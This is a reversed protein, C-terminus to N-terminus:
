SILVQVAAGSLLAFLSNHWKIRSSIMMQLSIQLFRLLGSLHRGLLGQPPGARGARLALHRGPLSGGTRSAGSASAWAGGRGSLAPIEDERERQHGGNLSARLVWLM